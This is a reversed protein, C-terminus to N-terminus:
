VWALAWGDPHVHAGLVAQQGRDLVEGALELGLPEGDLQVDPRPVVLPRRPGRRELLRQGPRGPHHARWAASGNPVSDGDAAPQQGPMVRMTAGASKPPGSCSSSVSTGVGSGPGPSTRTPTRAIPTLGM